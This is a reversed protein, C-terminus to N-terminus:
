RSVIWAHQGGGLPEFVRAGHRRAILDLPEELEGEFGVLVAAPPRAALLAPLEAESVVAMRLRQAPPLYPGLRWMFPGTSFEPYIEAGGELPFIPALTLVRGQGVAAKMEVGARHTVMPVWTDPAALDRVGRYEGSGAAVSVVVALAFAAAGWRRWREEAGLAALGYLIGVVLFPVPAYFYQYWPPRSVFAGLLLFPFLLLVGGAGVRSVGSGRPGALGLAAVVGGFLLLLAVNGPEGLVVQPSFLRGPITGWREEGIADWYMTHFPQYGGIDFLFKRPALLFLGLAPLLALAAGGGFCCVARLRTRIGLPGRSRAALVALPVAATVFTLRTGISLGLLAGGLFVWRGTREGRAGHILALFAALSLLTSLDHNWAKGYTFAFLPNTMLLLVGGLGMLWRVGAGHRAFAGRATAFVLWLTLVACVVSFARAALLCYDTFRFLAAYVLPLNPLHLYHFDRYPILGHAAILKAGALFAHEDHDLGRGMSRAFLVLSVVSFVVGMLVLSM